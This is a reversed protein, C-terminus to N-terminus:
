RADHRMRGVITVSMNDSDIVDVSGREYRVDVADFLEALPAVMNEPAREYLRPRIVLSPNPAVLAIEFTNPRSAERTACGRPPYPPM